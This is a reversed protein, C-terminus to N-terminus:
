GEDPSPLSYIAERGPQKIEPSLAARSVQQIPHQTPVLAPGFVTPSDALQQEQRYGVSIIRNDLGYRVYENYQGIAEETENM